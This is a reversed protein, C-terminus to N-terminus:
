LVTCVLRYLNGHKTGTGIVRGNKKIVAQKADFEVKAGNATAASVSLLNRRMKPAHLVNPVKTTHNDGSSTSLKMTVEGRGVAEVTHHGGLKIVIPNTLEEYDHMVARDNCVHSTAGSDIFWEQSKESAAEGNSAEGVITEEESAASEEAIRANHGHFSPSYQKGPCERAYHGLVGCAHCKGKKV